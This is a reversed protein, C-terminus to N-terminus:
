SRAFREVIAKFKELVVRQPETLTCSIGQDCAALTADADGSQLELLALGFWAEGLRPDLRLAKNFSNKAADVNTLALEAQAIRALRLAPSPPALAREWYRQAEAPEGLYLHTIAVRDALEWPLTIGRIVAQRPLEVAALTQGHRLQDEFLKCLESTGAESPLSLKEVAAPRLPQMEPSAARPSLQKSLEHAWDRADIMELAHFESKMSLLASLVEGAVPELAVTRRFAYTAQVGALGLAPDWAESASTRHSTLEESPYWLASALALWARVDGPSVSLAERARAGALLLMPLREKWIAAKTPLSQGV